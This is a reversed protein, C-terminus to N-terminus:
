KTVKSKNLATMLRSKTRSVTNKKLIGKQVAKDMAKITKKMLDDVDKSKAEIAKRTKKNLTKVTNKVIKNRQARVKSQRLYKKAQKTQPM